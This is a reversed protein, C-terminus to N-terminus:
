FSAHILVRLIFNSVKVLTVTPMRQPASISLRHLRRWQEEGRAFTSSSGVLLLLFENFFISVKSLEASAKACNTADDNFGGTDLASPRALSSPLVDFTLAGQLPQSATQVPASSTSLTTLITTPHLSPSTDDSPTKSVDCEESDKRNDCHLGDSEMEKREGLYYITPFAFRESAKCDFTTTPSFRASELDPSQREALRSRLKFKDIEFVNGISLMQPSLASRTIWHINLDIYLVTTYYSISCLNIERSRVCSVFNVSM